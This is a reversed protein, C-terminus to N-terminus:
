VVPNTRVLVQLVCVDHQTSSATNSTQAVYRFCVTFAVESRIHISLFVAFTAQSSESGHIVLYTYYHTNANTCHFHIRLRLADGAPGLESQFGFVDDSSGRKGDGVAIVVRSRVDSGDVVWRSFGGSRRLLSCVTEGLVERGVARV